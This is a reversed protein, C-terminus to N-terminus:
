YATNMGQSVGYQYTYGMDINIVNSGSSQKIDIKDDDNDKDSKLDDLHIINFPFLDNFYLINQEKEDGESFLTKTKLDFEDVRHTIEVPKTSSDSKSTLADNYVIAYTATEWNYVEGRRRAKEEELRIYEEMTINPDDM